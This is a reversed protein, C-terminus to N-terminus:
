CRYMSIGIIRFDKLNGYICADSVIYLFFHYSQTCVLLCSKELYSLLAEQYSSVLRVWEPDLFCEGLNNFSDKGTAKVLWPPSNLDIMPILRVEPNFKMIDRIQRDVVTFDYEEFNKWILPYPSYPIGILATSNSLILKVTDIGCSHMFSFLEFEKLYNEGYPPSYAIIPKVAQNEMDPVSFPDRIGAHKEFDEAFDENEM